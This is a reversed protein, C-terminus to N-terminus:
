KKYGKVIKSVTTYQIHLQDAIDKLTYGYQIHLTKIQKNRSNKAFQSLIWDVTLFDPTNRCLCNGPLV